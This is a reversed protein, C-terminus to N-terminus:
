LRCVLNSQSQLESTHEESRATSTGNTNLAVGAACPCQEIFPANVRKCLPCQWGMRWGTPEDSWPQAPWQRYTQPAHTAAATETDEYWELTMQGGLVDAAARDRVLGPRGPLHQHGVM